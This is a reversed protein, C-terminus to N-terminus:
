YVVKEISRIREGLRDRAAEVWEERLLSYVFCDRRAAGVVPPGCKRLRGERICGLKELAGIGRVNEVDVRFEVREIKMFDFAFDLLLFKCQINFSGGRFQSGYWTYGMQLCRSRMDIECFRTSGAYLGQLKDFVIFPYQRLRRRESTAALLYNRLNEEGAASVLSYEWIEPELLSFPLLNGFDSKKLPRIRVQTNELVYDKKFDFFGDM